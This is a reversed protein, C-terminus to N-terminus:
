SGEHKRAYWDTAEFDTVLGRLGELFVVGALPGFVRGPHSPGRLKAEYAEFKGRLEAIVAAAGDRYGDQYTKM